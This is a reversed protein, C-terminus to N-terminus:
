PTAAASTSDRAGCTAPKTMRLSDSTALLQRAAPGSRSYRAADPMTAIAPMSVRANVRRSGTLRRSARRSEVLAIVIRRVEDLLGPARRLHGPRVQHGADRTRCREVPREPRGPPCRRSRRPAQGRAPSGAGPAAHSKPM